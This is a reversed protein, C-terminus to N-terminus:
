LSTSSCTKKAGSKTYSKDLNKETWFFYFVPRIIKHAVGLEDRDLKHLSIYNKNTYKQTQFWTYVSRNIEHTQSLSNKNTDGSDKAKTYKLKIINTSM